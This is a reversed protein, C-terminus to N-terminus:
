VSRKISPASEWREGCYIFIITSRLTRFGLGVGELALPKLPVGQVVPPSTTVGGGGRKKEALQQRELKKRRARYGRQVSNGRLVVM